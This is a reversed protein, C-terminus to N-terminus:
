QYTNPNSLCPSYEPTNTIKVYFQSSNHMEMIILENIGDFNIIHRPLKLTCLSGMTSWYRGLYYGNFIVFGKVWNIMSIYLYIPEEKKLLIALERNAMLDIRTYFFTPYNLSNYTKDYTNLLEWKSNFGLRNKIILDELNVPYFVWNDIFKETNGITISNKSLLGKKEMMIKKVSLNDGNIRGMNEVIVHFENCDENLLFTIQNKDIFDTKDYFYFQNYNM